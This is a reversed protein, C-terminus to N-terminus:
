LYGLTPLAAARLSLEREINGLVGDHVQPDWLFQRQVSDLASQLRQLRKPDDLIAQLWTTKMM